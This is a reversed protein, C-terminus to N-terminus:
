AASFAPFVGSNNNKFLRSTQDRRLTASFLYRDMFNYDIKGFLSFLAWESKNGGNTQTGEGADLVM